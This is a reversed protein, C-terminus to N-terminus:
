RRRTMEERLIEGFAETFRDIEEETIVYPPFLLFTRSAARLDVLFGRKMVGVAVREAPAEPVLEIAAMLGLGRVDAIGSARCALDALRDLLHEGLETAREVLREDQLIEIVQAAIWGAFPDNQHSQAHRFGERLAGAVRETTAVAAVPLGNGLAKGMALLDPTVGDHDCGFWRGTRGLGTTVENAVLLAGATDALERLAAGYGPPPVISGGVSLVPEYLVAAFGDPDRDVEARLADLCAYDGCPWAAGLPCCSCNPTPLRFVGEAKPLYAANVGSGSLSLTYTSGGYYGDDVAVIRERGTASRAAKLALDMAESGSTLFTACSLGAPVIEALKGLVMDREPTAIGTGVHLLRGPLAEVARRWRPHEYGLVSSWCGGLLDVYANGATDWVTTGKGRVLTLDRQAHTAWVNM